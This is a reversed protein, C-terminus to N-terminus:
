KFATAELIEAIAALSSDESSEERFLLVGHWTDTCCVPFDMPPM